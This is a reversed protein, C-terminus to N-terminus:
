AVCEPVKPLVIAAGVCLGVVLILIEVRTVGKSNSVVPPKAFTTGSDASSFFPTGAGDGAGVHGKKYRTVLLSM